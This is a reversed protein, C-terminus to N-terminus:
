HSDRVDENDEGLGAVGSKGNEKPFTSKAISPGDRFSHFRSVRAQKEDRRMVNSEDSRFTPTWRIDTQEDSRFM